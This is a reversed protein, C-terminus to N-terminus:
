LVQILAEATRRHRVGREHAQMHYHQSMGHPNRGDYVSWSSMLSSQCSTIVHVPM